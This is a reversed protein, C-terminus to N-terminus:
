AARRAVLAGAALRARGDAELVSDLSDARQLPDDQLVGDIIEAIAPWSIAGELFAEVAVENAASLVAPATEGRRGAEYALALCAFVDTRPAEFDLRALTTWDIGGYACGLRDPYGIAYGICLRMDPLSLQAVTAGDVYEVMSHVVSQPHVVVDIRDYDVGFLEHAEIVELGKNMLTSSDVTIKPGMNWTPHKLAEGATVSALDALSRGRFPGGSATLLIRAVQDLRDPNGLTDNARLCQHVACHESDVPVIEAGPTALARAVVPGAAILSEKNALALRRGAELVALTVPLGAFGVVGNVTVEATLAATALADPGALLETGPPLLRALRPAAAEDAVAVLKPRVARAQAALAEVSRGAGLATVEYRDACGATVELTQTGISGTSGMVALTTGM